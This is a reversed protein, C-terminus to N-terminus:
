EYLIVALADGVKVLAEDLRSERDVDCQAPIITQV